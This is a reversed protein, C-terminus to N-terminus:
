GAPRAAEWAAADAAAGESWRHETLVRWGAAERRAIVHFRSHSTHRGGDADIRVVQLVGQESAYEGDSRRRQFRVSAELRQGSERLGRLSAASDEAYFAHDLFQGGRDDVMVYDRSRTGLYAADDFHGIGRLFPQWVEAYLAALAADADATSLPARPPPEQAPLALSAGGLLAALLLVTVRM